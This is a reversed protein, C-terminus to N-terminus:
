AILSIVLWEESTHIYFQGCKSGSLYLIGEIQNFHYVFLFGGIFQAYLLEGPFYWTYIIHASIFNAHDLQYRLLELTQLRTSRHSSRDSISEWAISKFVHLNFWYLIHTSMCIQTNGTRSVHSTFLVWHRAYSNPLSDLENCYNHEAINAM